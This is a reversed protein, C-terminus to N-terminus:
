LFVFYTLFVKANSEGLVYYLIQSNVEIHSPVLFCLHLMNKIPNLTMKLNSLCAALGLLSFLM